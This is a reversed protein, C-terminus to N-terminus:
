ARRRGAGAEGTVVAAGTPYVAKLSRSDAQTSQRSRFKAEALTITIVIPVTCITM